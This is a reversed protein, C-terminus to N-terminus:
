LFSWVTQPLYETSDQFGPVWSGEERKCCHRDSLLSKAEMVSTRTLPRTLKGDFIGISDTNGQLDTSSIGLERVSLSVLSEWM